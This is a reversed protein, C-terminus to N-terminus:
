MNCSVSSIDRIKRQLLEKDRVIKRNVVLTNNYLTEQKENRDKWYKNDKILEANDKALIDSTSSLTKIKQKLEANEVALDYQAVITDTRKIYYKWDEKNSNITNSISEPGVKKIQNLLHLRQKEKAEQAEFAEKTSTISDFFLGKFPNRMNLNIGFDGTINFFLYGDKIFSGFVKYIKGVTFDHLTCRTCEIYEPIKVLEKGNWHYGNAHEAKIHDIEQKKTAKPCRDENFRGHFEVESVKFDELMSSYYRWKEGDLKHRFTVKHYESFRVEGDKPVEVGLLKKLKPLDAPMSLIDTDTNDCYNFRMTEMNIFLYSFIRKKFRDSDNWKLGYNKCLKIVSKRDSRSCDKLKVTIQKKM